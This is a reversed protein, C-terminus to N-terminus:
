NGAVRLQVLALHGDDVLVGGLTHSSLDSAEARYDPRKWRSHAQGQDIQCHGGQALKGYPLKGAKPLRHRLQDRAVVLEGQELKGELFDQQPVKFSVEVLPATGGDLKIGGGAKNRLKREQEGGEGMRAIFVGLPSEGGALAAQRFEVEHQLRCFAAREIPHVLCQVLQIEGGIGHFFLQEVRGNGDNDGISLDGGLLRLQEPRNRVAEIAWHRRQSRYCSPM